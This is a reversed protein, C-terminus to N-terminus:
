DAGSAGAIEFVRDAPSVPPPTWGAPLGLWALAAARDRFVQLEDEADVRLMEHMRAFGFAIDSAVLVARRAHQGFPNLGAVRRLGAPTVRPETVDVLDQLQRFDPAFRADAKLARSHAEFEGDWVVGWARSYVVRNALDLRYTTPVAEVYPAGPVAM